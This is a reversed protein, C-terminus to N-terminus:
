GNGAALTVKLKLTKSNRSVTLTVEDGPKFNFLVNMYPHQGDLVVDNIQIIIDGPMIGAVEAPSSKQVQSVHVGRQFPLGYMQAIQPNIPQWRIGLFPRVVAGNSIIQNAATQVANSPIAFGLGEVVDSSTGTNRVNITNIGVIQGALNVLPGGSNGHNIAADTQILNEMLYGQGTDLSRGTASIVGVTVTNKCDSLPSGIAIVTEGPKLVDSNGLTAVGPMVGEVKLVALDTFQDSGIIKAPLETGNALIVSTNGAAEIVHKNTLIYGDKSTIVGSGSVTGSSVNGFASSQDPIISQVTVVAPGVAEVTKTIATEVSTSNVLLKV